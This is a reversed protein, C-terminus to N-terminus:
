IDSRHTRTESDIKVPFIPFDFQCRFQPAGDSRTALDSHDAYSVLHYAAYSIIIFIIIIVNYVLLM